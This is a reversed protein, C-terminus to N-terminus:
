NKEMSGGRRKDATRRTDLNTSLRREPNPTASTVAGAPAAIRAGPGSSFAAQSAPQDPRKDEDREGAGPIVRPSQRVPRRLRFARPARRAATRAAATPSPAAPTRICRDGHQGRGGLQGINGHRHQGDPGHLGQVGDRNARLDVAAEELDGEPLALVDLFAVDEGADVRGDVLGLVLLRQGALGLVRCIELVGAEIEPAIGLEALGVGSRLLLLVGLAGGDGLKLRLHLAGLARDVARAGVEVVRGNARRDRAAGAEAQHALAVEHAGPVRGADHDDRLQLRHADHERQRLLGQAGDVRGGRGAREDDLREFGIAAGASSRPVSSTTSL